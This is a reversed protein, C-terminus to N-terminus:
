YDLLSAISAPTLDNRCSGSGHPTTHHHNDHFARSVTVTVLGSLALGHRWSEVAFEILFKSFGMKEREKGKGVVGELECVNCPGQFSWLM